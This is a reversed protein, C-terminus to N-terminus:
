DIIVNRKEDPVMLQFSWWEENWGCRLTPLRKSLHNRVALSASYTTSLNSNGVLYSVLNEVFANGALALEVRVRYSFRGLEVIYSSMSSSSLGLTRKEETRPLSAPDRLITKKMKATLLNLYLMAVPTHDVKMDTSVPSVLTSTSKTSRSIESDLWVHYFTLRIIIRGAVHVTVCKDLKCWLGFWAAASVVVDLLAQLSARQSGDYLDQILGLQTETSLLGCSRCCIHLVVSTMICVDSRRRRAEDHLGRLPEQGRRRKLYFVTGPCGVSFRHAVM